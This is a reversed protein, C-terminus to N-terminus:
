WNVVAYYCEIGREREREVRVQMIFDFIMKKSPSSQRSKSTHIFLFSRVNGIMFPDDMELDNLLM